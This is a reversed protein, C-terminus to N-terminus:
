GTLLAVLGRWGAFLTLTIGFARLMRAWWALRLMVLGSRVNRSFHYEWDLRREEEPGLPPGIGDMRRAMELGDDLEKRHIMRVHHGVRTLLPWRLGDDVHDPWSREVLTKRWPWLIKIRWRPPMVRAIAPMTIETSTATVTGGWSAAEVAHHALEPRDRLLMDEIGDLRERMRDYRKGMQNLWEVAIGFLAVGLASLFGMGEVLDYALM